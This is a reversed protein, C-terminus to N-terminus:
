PFFTFDANNNPCELPIGKNSEALNLNAKFLIDLPSNEALYISRNFPLIFTSEISTGINNTCTINLEVNAELADLDINLNSQTTITVQNGNKTLTVNITDPKSFSIFDDKSFLFIIDVTPKLNDGSDFNISYSIDRVPPPLTTGQATKTGDYPQLIQM